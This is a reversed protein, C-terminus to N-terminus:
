LCELIEEEVDRLKDKGFFIEKGVFFTPSGFTGREVSDTTNRILQQKIEPDTTGVIIEEAPLGADVLAQQIISADAMNLEQEWMCQYMAEIYDDGNGNNLTYIAGRMISLTNIPFYPNFRFNDLKHRAVFRKTELANYEPKNRVGALQEMPSKNNTAKFVGGLLIPYYQFKVGTREEIAPIVRHSYYSNPSGFDFHFEVSVSM